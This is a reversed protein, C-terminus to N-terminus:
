GAKNMDVDIGVARLERALAMKWGGADDLRVYLVGSMDSPLEVDSEYLIVVGSRRLRAAFFGLEFM